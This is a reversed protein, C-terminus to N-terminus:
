VKRWDLHIHHDQDRFDTGWARHTAESQGGGIFMRLGPRSLRSRNHKLWAVFKRPDASSTAGVEKFAATPGYNNLDVGLGLPHQGGPRHTARIVSVHVDWKGRMIGRLARLVIARVGRNKYDLIDQMAPGNPGGDGGHFLRHQTVAHSLRRGSMKLLLSGPREPEPPLRASLPHPIHPPLVSM